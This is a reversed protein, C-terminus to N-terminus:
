FVHRHMLAVLEPLRSTQTKHFLHQIHTRMTTIRVSMIEAAAAPSHGEHLLRAVETERPTLNFLRALVEMRSEPAIDKDSFVISVSFRHSAAARGRLPIIALQLPRRRPSRAVCMVGARRVGDPRHGGGADLILRSLRAADERKTAALRGDTILLGDAEALLSAAQENISGIRGSADTVVVASSFRALAAEAAHARAELETVRWLVRLSRQLHPLVLRLLALDTEDYAGAARTRIAGFMVMETHSRHPSGTAAHWGQCPRMIENYFDSRLMDRDTQIAERSAITMPPVSLMFRIGPNTDPTMYREQFLREIALDQGTSFVIGEKGTTGAIGLRIVSERLNEGLRDLVNPWAEPDLCAEHVEAIMALITSTEIM